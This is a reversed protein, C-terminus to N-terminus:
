YFLALLVLEVVFVLLYFLGKLGMQVEIDSLNIEGKFGRYLAYGKKVCVSLYFWGCVAAGNILLIYWLNSSTIDRNYKDVSPM